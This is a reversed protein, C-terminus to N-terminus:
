FMNAATSAVTAAGLTLAMAADVITYTLDATLAESAGNQYVTKSSTSSRAVFGASYEIISGVQFNNFWVTADDFRQFGGCFHSTTSIADQKYFNGEFAGATPSPQDSNDLATGKTLLGSANTNSLYTIYQNPSQRVSTKASSSGTGNWTDQCIYNAYDTSAHVWKPSFWTTVISKNALTATTDAQVVWGLNIGTSLFGDVFKMSSMSNKLIWSDNNWVQVDSPQSWFLIPDPATFDKQLYTYFEKPDIMSSTAGKPTFEPIPNYTGNPDSM